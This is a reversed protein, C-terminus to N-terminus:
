FASAQFEKSYVLFRYHFSFRLRFQTNLFNFEISISNFDHREESQKVLTAKLKRKIGIFCINWSYESEKLSKSAREDGMALVLISYWSKLEEWFLLRAKSSVRFSSSEKMALDNEWGIISSKEISKWIFGNESSDWSYQVGRM